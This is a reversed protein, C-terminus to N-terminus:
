DEGLLSAKARRDLRTRLRWLSRVAVIVLAVLLALLVLSPAVWSILITNFPTDGDIGAGRFVVMVLNPAVGTAAFLAILWSVLGVATILIGRIFGFLAKAGGDGWRIRMRDGWPIQATQKAEEARKAAAQSAKTKKSEGVASGKKGTKADKPKTVTATMETSEKENTTITDTILIDATSGSGM